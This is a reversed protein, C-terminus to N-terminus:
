GRQNWPLRAILRGMSCFDSIGAFVLGPGVFGSLWINHPNVFHAPLVGTFVIARAAIRAM